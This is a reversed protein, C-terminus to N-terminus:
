LMRGCRRDDLEIVRNTAECYIGTRALLAYAAQFLRDAMADDTSVPNALDPLIDYAKITERIAPILHKMMFDKESRIPGTAARRMFELFSPM